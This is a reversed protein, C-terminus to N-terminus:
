DDYHGFKYEVKKLMEVYNEKRLIMGAKIGQLIFKIKGDRKLRRMSYLVVPNTLIVFNYGAKHLKRVFHSDEGYRLEEEFGGVKKFVDKKVYIFAGQVIPAIKSVTKAYSHEINMALKSFWSSPYPIYRSTLCDIKARKRIKGELEEMFSENVLIDADFFILNNYRAAKAGINRQISPGATNSILINLDLGEEHERLIDITKDESQGDVVIVEFNKYTQKELQTLLKGVYNEENLTIIVISFALNEKVETKFLPNKM